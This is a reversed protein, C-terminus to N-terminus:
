FSTQPTAGVPYPPRSARKAAYMARDAAAYLHDPDLGDDPYLALGISLGTRVEKHEVIIPDSLASELASLLSQAGEANDLQSVVTFEDGGSRALTDSARLRSGLRAVVERLAFDGVRHGFTDNVEKFHDLDLVFVAVKSKTRKAQALAQDLRDELLRRNPLDTLEDHYALYTTREIQNELLTLIMGVAVLYKPINWVESEIRISPWFVQLLVSTPFVAGWLVFGSVATLVGATTRNHHNWYLIAATFNLAALIVTIGIEPDGHAVGWGTIGAAVIAMVVGAAYLNGQQNHRWLVLLPALMGVAALFYYFNQYGVGWIAGSSYAVAPVAIALALYVKSRRNSVIASVSILFAVGALILSDLSISMAALGWAGSATAAFQAAFHVLVLFWGILWLRVQEGVAKRSIAWFVVVLIALAILNPLTTFNM